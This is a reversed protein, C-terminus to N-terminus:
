YRSSLLPQNFGEPSPQINQISFSCRIFFDTESRQIKSKVNLLFEDVVSESNFFDYECSHNECRIEFINIPGITNVALPKDEVTTTALRGLECYKLFDHTLKSKFTPLFEGCKICKKGHFVNKQKNEEVEFIKKFFRNKSDVQHYNIYHNKLDYLESNFGCLLCKM